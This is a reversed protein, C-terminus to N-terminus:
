KKLRELWGVCVAAVQTIESILQPTPEDDNLARGVEGVEEMLIALAKWDTATRANYSFRGERLLKEQRTREAYIDGLIEERVDFTTKM